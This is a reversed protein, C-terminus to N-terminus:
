HAQELTPEEIAHFGPGHDDVQLRRACQLLVMPSVLSSRLLLAQPHASLPLILFQVREALTNWQSLTCCRHFFYLFDYLPVAVASSHYGRHLIVCEATDMTDTENVNATDLLIQFARSLTEDAMHLEEDWIFGRNLLQECPYQFLAFSSVLETKCYIILIQLASKVYLDSTEAYLFGSIWEQEKGVCGGDFDIAWEDALKHGEM